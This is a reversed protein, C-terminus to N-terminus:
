HLRLGKKIRVENADDSPRHRYVPFLDPKIV